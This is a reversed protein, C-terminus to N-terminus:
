YNSNEDTLFHLKFEISDITGLVRQSMQFNVFKGLTKDMEILLTGYDGSTMRKELEKFDYGVQKCVDRAIALLFYANGDPGDLNIDIKDVTFDDRIEFSM